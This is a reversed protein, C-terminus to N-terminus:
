NYGDNRLFDFVRVFNFWDESKILITWQLLERIFGILLTLVFLYIITERLIQKPLSSAIIGWSIM